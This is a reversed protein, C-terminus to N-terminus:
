RPRGSGCSVVVGLLVAHPVSGGDQEGGQDEGEAERGRRADAREGGRGGTRGDLLREFGAFAAPGGCTGPVRKPLRSEPQPTGAIVASAPQRRIPASAVRFMPAATPMTAIVRSESIKRSAGCDTSVKALPTALTTKQHRGLGLDDAGVPQDEAAAPPDEPDAVPPDRQGAAELQPQDAVPEGAQRRDRDEGAQREEAQRDGRHGRREPEERERQEGGPREAAPLEVPARRVAGQEAEGGPPEPRPDEGGPAPYGREAGLDRRESCHDEGGVEFGGRSGTPRISPGARM